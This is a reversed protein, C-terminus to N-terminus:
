SSGMLDIRVAGYIPGTGPAQVLIVCADRGGQRLEAIDLEFRAPAGTWGGIRRFDRVVNYYALTRGANEGRGVRVERRRDFRVLLVDGAGNGGGVTVIVKGNPAMVASVAVGPAAAVERLAMKVARRDSGVEHVRGGIVMQPTYAYRPGLARGYARQRETTEPTALTDKWGIYDWYNVPFTLGIIDPRRILEGMFADAAPCSSCGQSTFLEVVTVNDTNAVGGPGAALAPGPMAIAFLVAAIRLPKRM